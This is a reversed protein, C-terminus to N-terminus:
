LLNPNIIGERYALFASARAARYLEGLAGAIIFIAVTPVLLALILVALLPKIGQLGLGILVSLGTLGIQMIQRQAQIADVIEFKIVQVGGVGSNGLPAASRHKTVVHALHRTPKDPIERILRFRASDVDDSGRLGSAAVAVLCRRKSCCQRMDRRRELRTLRGASPAARSRREHRSPTPRWHCSLACLTNVRRM